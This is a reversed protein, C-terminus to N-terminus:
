HLGAENQKSDMRMMTKCSFFALLPILHSSSKLVWPAASLLERHKECWRVHTLCQAMSQELLSESVYSAVRKLSISFTHIPKQYNEASIFVLPLLVRVIWEKEGLNHDCPSIM